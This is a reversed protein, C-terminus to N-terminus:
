FLCIAVHPALSDGVSFVIWVIQFCNSQFDDRKILIVFTYISLYSVVDLQYEVSCGTTLHIVAVGPVGDAQLWVGGVLVLQQGIVRSCHSYRFAFHPM